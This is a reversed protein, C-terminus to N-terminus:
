GITRGVLSNLPYRAAQLNGLSYPFKAEMIAIALRADICLKKVWSRYALGTEEEPLRAKTNSLRM